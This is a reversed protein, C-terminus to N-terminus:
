RWSEAFQCVDENDGCAEGDRAEGVTQGDRYTLDNAKDGDFTGCLGLSHRWDDSSAHLHM